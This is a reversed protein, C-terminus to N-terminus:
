SGSNRKDVVRRAKGKSREITGTSSVSVEARIGIYSKILRVLDKGAAAGATALEAGAEVEVHVLVSDLYKDRTVELFYHPSLAPIGLLLEEIQSPFINVGRIILMDDSRGVIKRIRRMSRSTPPLLCTLDRTRYRIVPLAEKTLSTLTLEGLCGDTSTLRM